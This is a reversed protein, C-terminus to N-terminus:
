TAGEQVSVVLLSFFFVHLHLFCALKNQVVIKPTNRNGHAVGCGVSHAANPFDAKEQTRQPTQLGVSTELRQQVDFFDLVKSNASHNFDGQAGSSAPSSRPEGCRQVPERRRPPQQNADGRRGSTGPARLPGSRQGRM